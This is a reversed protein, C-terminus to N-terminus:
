SLDIARSKKRKLTFCSTKFFVRVRPGYDNLKSIFLYFCFFPGSGQLM